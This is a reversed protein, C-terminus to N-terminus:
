EAQFVTNLVLNYAMKDAMAKSKGLRRFKASVLEITDALGFVAVDELIMRPAFM